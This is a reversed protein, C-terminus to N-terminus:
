LEASYIGTNGTAVLAVFAAGSTGIASGIVGSVYISNPNIGSITVNVFASSDGSYLVHSGTPATPAARMPVPTPVVGYYGQPTTPTRLTGGFYFSNVSFALCYRQCLALEESYPRVEFPTALLGKELQVGTISLSAGSSSTLDSTGIASYYSASAWAGATGKYFSGVAAGFTLQMGASNDTAWTGSTDGAVAITKYEFNTSSTTFTFPYARNGLGNKIAGGFTGAYSSKVWFSIIIPQASATGWGLDAVNFGEIRQSIIMYDSTNPSYVQTSTVILSKTFGTATTSSQAVTFKGTTNQNWVWRDVSYQGDVPTISAGANRQDIVM